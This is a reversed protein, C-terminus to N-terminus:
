LKIEKWLIKPNRAIRYNHIDVDKNERHTHINERERARERERERVNLEIRITGFSPRPILFGPMLGLETMYKNLCIM